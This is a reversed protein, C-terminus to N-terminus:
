KKNKITISQLKVWKKGNWSWQDKITQSPWGRPDDEAWVFRSLWLSGAELAAGGDYESPVDLLPLLEGKTNITYVLALIDGANGGYSLSAVVLVEEKGDSNLDGFSVSGVSFHYEDESSPPTDYQGKKVPFKVITSEGSFAGTKVEYTRNMWDIDRVTTQLTKTQAVATTALALALLSFFCVAQKTM